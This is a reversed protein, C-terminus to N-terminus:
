ARYSEIFSEYQEITKNYIDKLSKKRKEIYDINSKIKKINKYDYEELFEKFIEMEKEPIYRYLVKFARKLGKEEKKIEKKYMEKAELNREHIILFKISKINNYTEELRNFANEYEITQSLINKRDKSNVVGVTLVSPNKSFHVM